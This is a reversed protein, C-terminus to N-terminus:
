LRWARTTTEALAQIDAESFVAYEDQQFECFYEQRFFWEGLEAREEALFELSIRQVEDATIRYRQWREHKAEPEDAHWAAAWWGSQGFPTSLAILQGGSVALFPRASKYLSDSVQAAEDVVLLDVASYGRVTSENGPLSIVRSGNTLELSMQNEASPPVPRNLYRYGALVKRFLEQSQRQTPSLLLTTSRPYYIAQHLAKIAAVTSKGSQRCCNLLLRPHTSRLVQQQWPDLNRKLRRGFSAPDASSALDRLLNAATPRLAPQPARVPTPGRTTSM